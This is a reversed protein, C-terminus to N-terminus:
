SLSSTNIHVRGKWQGGRRRAHQYAFDLTYCAYLLAIGPLALGWLPSLRCRLKAMLSMLVFGGCSTHASVWALADETPIIDADTFLLYDPRGTEEAGTVGQRMAWLKGTWGAPLGRGRVGRVERGPHSTAIYQVAAATGDNSDDDVVITLTGPYDQQLLSSASIVDAENRAPIIAAVAPWTAPTIVIENDRVAALWFRGRACFLYAWVLVSLWAAINAFM